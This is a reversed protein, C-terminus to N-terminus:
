SSHNADSASPQDRACEGALLTPNTGVTNMMDPTPKLAEVLQTKYAAYAKEQESPEIKMFDPIQPGSHLGKPRAKIEIVEDDGATSSSARNSRATKPKGAAPKSDFFGKKISPKASPGNDRGSTTPVVTTIAVPPESESASPDAAASNRLKLAEVQGSLSQLPPPADASLSALPVGNSPIDCPPPALFFDVLTM